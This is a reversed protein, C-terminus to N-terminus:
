DPTKFDPNPPAATLPKGTLGLSGVERESIMIRIIVIIAAM